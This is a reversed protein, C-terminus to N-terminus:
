LFVDPGNAGILVTRESVCIKPIQIDPLHDFTNQNDGNTASSQSTISFMRKSLTYAEVEVKHIVKHIMKKSSINTTRSSGKLKVQKAFDERLLISQSGSDLLAFTSITEGDTKM